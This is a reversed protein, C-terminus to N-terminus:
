VPTEQIAPLDKVLQAVLSAWITIMLFDIEMNIMNLASDRKREKKKEKKKLASNELLIDPM